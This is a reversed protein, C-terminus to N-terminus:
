ERFRAGRWIALVQRRWAGPTPFELGAFVAKFAEKALPSPVGHYPMASKMYAKMPAAKAPDRRRRLEARLRTLLPPM